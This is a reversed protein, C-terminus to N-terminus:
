KDVVREGLPELRCRREFAIVLDIVTDVSEQVVYKNGNTLTLVTDPTAEVVEILQSNLVLEKGNLRHLAIM